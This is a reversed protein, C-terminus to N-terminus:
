PFFSYFLKFFALFCCVSLNIQHRRTLSYTRATIKLQLTILFILPTFSHQSLCGGDDDDENEGSEENGFHGNDPDGPQGEQDANYDDDPQILGDRKDDPPNENDDDSFRSSVFTSGGPLSSSQTALLCPCDTCLVDHLAHHM